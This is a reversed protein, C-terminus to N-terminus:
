AAQRIEVSEGINTQLVIFDATPTLQVSVVVVFIGLALSTPTNGSKPDVSFDTIRSASPQDPSQLTSLFAVIESVITDQLSQSMPLKCFDILTGSLSDQIYDAMRRRLINKEGTVLSTTVGSQFGPGTKRDFRLGCVGAARLATYEALGLAPTGRAFAIVPSLVAPVPAQSQGPNREPPLNSEVSALWTDGTVDLIGDVTTKGDSTALVYGVAEPISTRVAPWSYDIRDSRNAGVGPDADGLVTSLTLQDVAPSVQARRTLGQTAALLVHTKLTTRTTSDKRASVVMNIDRAPYSDSLLAAIAATYRASLTANSAPNAAHVNADYTLAVTPHTKGALGSLSDWTTATGATPVVSPTLAFAPAITADLPRALVAYGTNAALAAAAVSGASDATAAVHVRYPQLTGTTLVFNTGDLMQLTLTTATTATVRYTNANSGLFAAGGIVGLVVIDGVAVIPASTFAKSACTLVQTPGSAATTTAGDVGSLYAPADTFQVTSALRCRNVGNVFQRSPSVAAPALPVIPQAVTVSQNTPLQRWIRIAGQPGSAPVVLDVPACILRSFLKNRVEVFGNGMDGGFDGLREDFGGVKALLDTSSFIETPQPNTTISGASDVTVSSSMNSFEGVVCVVGTGVGAISGPPPLDIIVVGEIQMITANDPIFGYRRVFGPM